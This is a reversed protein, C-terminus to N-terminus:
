QFEFAIYQKGAAAVQQSFSGIIARPGVRPGATALYPPIASTLPWIHEPLLFVQRAYGFTHCCLTQLRM